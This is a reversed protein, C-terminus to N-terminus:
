PRGIMVITFSGPIARGFQPRGGPAPAPAPEREVSMVFLRGTKSDLTLTRAGNMTELNQEVEFSTPSKEKIVTMTGNGHSTFVELTAPNFAAGDNGGALPLEALVKGDTASLIVMM